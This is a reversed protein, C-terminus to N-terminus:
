VRGKTPLKPKKKKFIRKNLQPQPGTKHYDDESEFQGDVLSEIEPRKEKPKYM